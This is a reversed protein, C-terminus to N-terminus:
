LRWWQRWQQFMLVPWLAFQYDYKGEQHAHWKAQLSKMDLIDKLDSSCLLDEGWEKLPGRLWRGVPIGFGMKPRNILSDPVYSSLIKKLIWKGQRDRMKISEPLRWSFEIIRHDLLPERGELSFAMTARDLKVLIDDPLYECSDMLQMSSLPSTLELQSPCESQPSLYASRMIEQYFHQFNKSQSLKLSKIIKDSSLRLSPIQFPFRGMKQSLSFEKNLLAISKRLGRPIRNFRRWLDQVELYRKYGAFFEDGGDGSMSVTVFERALKSVALTPIQSSDAFPEDYFCPINQIFEMAKKEDLILEHHDTGLYHAVGKAYSSEDYDKDLFGVSFTKIPQTSTSQMLAVVLTSDVGGSLFAGLPVDAVMRKKVSDKLLHHLTKIADEESGRFPNEIGKLAIDLMSWYTVKNVEKFSDITLITGPELRFINKFISAPGKIYGYSFFDGLVDLNMEPAWRPYHFFAKPQSAFILNGESWGWYLPKVGLRDRVLFLRQSRKDWLAFAFMGIFKKVAEEIGWYACAELIVETDSRSKFSVGLNELETKIESANFVEGNYTVVLHGSASTMPQAGLESLDLISLRRHGLAVNNLDDIWVGSGDPGRKELAHHMREITRAVGEEFSCSTFNWFGVIGCM